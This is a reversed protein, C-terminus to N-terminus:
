IRHSHMRWWSGHTFTKASIGTGRTTRTESQPEGTGGGAVRVTAGVGVAEGVGSGSMMALIKSLAKRKHFGINLMWPDVSCM